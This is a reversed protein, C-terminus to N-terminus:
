PMVIGTATGIEVKVGALVFEDPNDAQVVSAREGSLLLLSLALPLVAAFAVPAFRIPRPLIIACLARGAHRM